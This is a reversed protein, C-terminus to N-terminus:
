SYNLTLDENLFIKNLQHGLFDIIKKRVQSNVGDAGILTKALYTRKETRLSWYDRKKKVAVIKEEILEAGKEVARNMLFSDLLLRSFGLDGHELNICLQNGSTFVYNIKNIINHEIPIQKLFPFMKQAFTTVLGGCPKERPYSSDFITPYIDNEALCYACNVGAPGGGVIATQIM